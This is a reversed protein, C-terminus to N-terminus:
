DNGKDECFVCDCDDEHEVYKVLIKDRWDKM